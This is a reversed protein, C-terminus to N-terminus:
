VRRVESREDNRDEGRERWDGVAYVLWVCVDLWVDYMMYMFMWSHCYCGSM